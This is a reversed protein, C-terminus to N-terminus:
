TFWGRMKRFFSEKTEDEEGGRVEDPANPTAGMDSLIKKRAVTERRHMDADDVKYLDYIDHLETMYQRFDVKLPTLLGTRPDYVCAYIRPTTLESEEDLFTEVRRRQVVGTKFLNICQEVVNCEVLRRHREERDEISDLESQHLRYIDRINRLWNELPPLHDTAEVAARVGGCDFHGCVIINPVKLVGVAYQIAAMANFDTGVVLNAVNRVTFVRGPELGMIENAAVRFLHPHSPITHSPILLSSIFPSTGCGNTDCLAPM